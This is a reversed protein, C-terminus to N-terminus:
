EDNKRNNKFLEELEEQTMVKANNKFNRMILRYEINSYVSYVVSYLFLFKAIEIHQPLIGVTFHFLLLTALLSFLLKM